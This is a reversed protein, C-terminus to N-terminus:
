IGGSDSAQLNFPLSRVIVVPGLGSVKMGVTSSLLLYIRILFTQLCNWQIGSMSEELFIRKPIFILNTGDEGGGGTCKQTLLLSKSLVNQARKIDLSSSATTPSLFGSEPPSDM